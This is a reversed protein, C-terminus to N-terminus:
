KIQGVEVLHQDPDFFRFVLEDPNQVRVDHILDVCGVLRDFTDYIDLTEFYLVINRCGYGREKTDARGFISQHLSKGEHLAFGNEFLIFHKREIPVNLGLLEAYFYKSAELDVVFPIPNVFKLM